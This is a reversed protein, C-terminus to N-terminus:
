GEETLFSGVPNPLVPGSLEIKGGLSGTSCVVNEFELNGVPGLTDGNEAVNELRGSGMVTGDTSGTETLPIILLAGTLGAKWSSLRVPVPDRLLSRGLISVM